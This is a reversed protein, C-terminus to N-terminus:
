EAESGAAKCVNHCEEEKFLDGVQGVAKWLPDCIRAATKRFSSPLLNIRPIL